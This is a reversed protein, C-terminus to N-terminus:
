DKNKSTNPSGGSLLSLVQDLKADSESSRKEMTEIKKKLMTLEEERRAEMKRAPNLQMLLEPGKKVIEQKHPVQALDQEAGRVAAEIERSVLLSDPSVFWGRDPYNASANNQPYEISTNENGISMSIDYVLGYFALAPNNQAAKPIHPLSVGTITATSVSFDKRNFIYLTSGQAIQPAGQPQLGNYM